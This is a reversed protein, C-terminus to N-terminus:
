AEQNEACMQCTRWLQFAQPSYTPASRKRNEDCIKRALAQGYFPCSVTASLLENRVRREIGDLAAQYRNALVLNVTAPSIGIRRATAAQSSRECEEALAMVWDPVLGGWAAIAKDRPNM